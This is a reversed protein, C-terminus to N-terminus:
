RRKFLATEKYHGRRIFKRVRVVVKVNGSDGDIPTFPREMVDVPERSRLSPASATSHYTQLDPALARHAMENLVLREWTLDGFAECLEELSVKSRLRLHTFM